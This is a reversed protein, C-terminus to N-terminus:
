KRNLDRAQLKTPYIASTKDLQRLETGSAKKQTADGSNQHSTQQNGASNIIAQMSQPNMTSDLPMGLFTSLSQRTGYKLTSGKNKMDSLEEVLKQKIESHLDPYVSELAQVHGDTLTANKIHELVSVPNSVIEHYQMFKNQDDKSPMTPADEFAQEGRSPLKSQLFGLARQATQGIEGGINPATTMINPHVSDIRGPLDQDTALAQIQDSKESFDNGMEVEM